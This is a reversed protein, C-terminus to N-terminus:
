PADGLLELEHFRHLEEVLTDIPKEDVQSPGIPDIITNADLLAYFTNLV